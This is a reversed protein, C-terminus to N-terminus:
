HIRVDNTWAKGEKKYQRILEKERCAPRLCDPSYNTAEMTEIIRMEPKVGQFLLARIYYSSAYQKLTISQALNIHQKLRSKPECTIGVYFEDGNLPNVLAYFYWTTKVESIRGSIIM